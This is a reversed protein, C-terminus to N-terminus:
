RTPVSLVESVTADPLFQCAGNALTTALDPGLTGLPSKGQTLIANVVARQTAADLDSYESCKMTLADPPAPVVPVSTTPTGPLGPMNPLTIGPLGPLTPAATATPTSSLPPGPQTTQAVSGSTTRECGTSLGVLTLAVAAVWVYTRM